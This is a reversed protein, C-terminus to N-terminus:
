LRIGGRMPYISPLNFKHTKMVSRQFQGQRARGKNKRHKM